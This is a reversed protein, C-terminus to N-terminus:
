SVNQLFTLKFCSLTITYNDQKNHSHDRGTQIQFSVKRDKRNTQLDNRRSSSVLGFVCRSGSGADLLYYLLVAAPNSVDLWKTKSNLSVSPLRHTDAM